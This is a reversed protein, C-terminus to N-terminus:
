VLWEGPNALAAIARQRGDAVLQAMIGPDFALTELAIEGMPRIVHLHVDPGMLESGSGSDDAFLQELEAAPVNFRAGVRERVSSLYRRGRAASEVVRLDHLLVDDTLIGITRMLIGPVDQFRKEQPAHQKPALIVAYIETAGNLLAVELPARERIGGDVYQRLPVANGVVEIPPMLAPMDASAIMARILQARSAIAHLDCGEPVQGAPGSQFYAVRQTQLCVTALFMQKPSGLIKSTRDQTIVTGVRDTLPQVDFISDTKLIDALRRRLVVDKTQLSTYLHVLEDIEGLVALPAILAGTSTGCVIDFALGKDQVLHQIAGVAFAGKSGGGSVVLATKGM